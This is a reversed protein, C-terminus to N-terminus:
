DHTTQWKENIAHCMKRHWIGDRNVSQINESITNLNGIRKRKKCNTQHM